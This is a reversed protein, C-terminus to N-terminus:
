FSAIVDIDCFPLTKGQIIQGQECGKGAVLVTDNTQAISLAHEIAKKRDLIILPKQLLDKCIADAIDQPSEDRPNDNTIIVTNALESAINGMIARKRKDRNGGCGFVCILKGETSKKLTSLAKELADPTHAYDVIARINKQNSVTQMRGPVAKLEPLTKEITKLDVGLSGLVAVVALVNSTNFEGILSHSMILEGWPTQIVNNEKLHIAPVPILANPDTSYALCTEKIANSEIWSRGVADDWNIVATELSPQEWLKAKAKAYEEMTEHYDLHDHSLNTFVGIPMHIASVRSQDLAHSSIEMAVHTAGSKQCDLLAKICTIPDPTTLGTHNLKPLVGVGLTGVVGCLYDCATLAQALYHSVSTKGNTGTIGIVTLSESPKGYFDHALESIHQQLNAVALAPCQSPLNQTLKEPDYLIASAGAKSAQGMFDRGDSNVGPYALFVDGPSMKRSDLCLGTFSVNPLRKSLLSSM